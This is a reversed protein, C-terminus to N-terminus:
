VEACQELFASFPDSNTLRVMMESNDSGTSESPMGSPDGAPQLCTFKIVENIVGPGAANAEIANIKLSRLFLEFKNYTAALGTLLSGTIILDAMQITDAAQKTLRTDATYRPVTFSGSVQRFGMRAPQVRYLGSKTDRDGISLNNKLTLEFASIGLQDASALAVSSSYDDMRFVSDAFRMREQLIIPSASYAWAASTTNLASARDLCFPVLEFEFFVGETSLRITMSEVMVALWSWLSVRKDLSFTGHRVHNFSGENYTFAEEHHNIACEYLHIFGRAIKFPININPEVTLAPTIDCYYHAADVATIRRVQCDDEPDGYPTGTNIRLWEGVHDAHFVTVDSQIRTTTCPVSGSTSGAAIGAASENFTPSTVLPSAYVKNEWGMACAILQGLGLYWGECSLRGGGLIGTLTQATVGGTNTLTQVPDFIREENLGENRYPLLDYATLKQEAAIALASTTPYAYSTSRKGIRFGAKTILGIGVAM